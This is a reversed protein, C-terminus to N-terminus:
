GLARREVELKGNYAARVFSQSDCLLYFPYFFFEGPALKQYGGGESNNKDQEGKQIEKHLNIAMGEHLTSFLSFFIRCYKNLDLCIGAALMYHSYLILSPWYDLM